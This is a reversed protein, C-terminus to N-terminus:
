RSLSGLLQQVLTPNKVFEPLIVEEFLNQDIHFENLIDPPIVHLQNILDSYDEVQLLQPILISSLPINIEKKTHGSKADGDYNIITASFGSLQEIMASNCEIKGNKM